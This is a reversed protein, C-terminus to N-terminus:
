RSVGIWLVDQARNESFGVHIHRNYVGIRVSGYSIGASVIQWRKRSGWARIDLALGDGHEGPTDRICSTVTFDIDPWSDQLFGLFMSIDPEISMQVGKKYKIM